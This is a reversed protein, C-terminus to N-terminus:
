NTPPQSHWITISHQTHLTVLHNIVTSKHNVSSTLHRTIPSQITSQDVSLRLINITTSSSLYQWHKIHTQDHHTISPCISVCTVTSWVMRINLISQTRKIISQTHSTTHTVLSADVCVVIVLVTDCVTCPSINETTAVCLMGINHKHGSLTNVTHHLVNYVDRLLRIFAITHICVCTCVCAFQQHTARTHVVCHIVAFLMILVCWKQCVCVHHHWDSLQGFLWWAYGSLCTNSAMLEHKCVFVVRGCIILWANDFRLQWDDCMLCCVILLWLCYSIAAWWYCVTHFKIVIVSKNAVCMCLWADVTHWWIVTTLRWDGFLLQGDCTTVCGDCVMMGSIWIVPWDKGFWLTVGRMTLWDYVVPVTVGLMVQNVTNAWWSNVIVCWWVLTTCCCGVMMYWCMDSLVCVDIMPVWGDFVVRCNYTILQIARTRKTSQNNLSLLRTWCTTDIHWWHHAVIGVNHLRIQSTITQARFLSCDCAWAVGFLRPAWEIMNCGDCCWLMDYFQHTSRQVHGQQMALHHWCSAFISVTHNYPRWMTWWLLVRSMTHLVWYSTNIRMVVVYQMWNYCVVVCCRVDCTWVHWQTRVHVASLGFWDLMDSLAAVGCAWCCM